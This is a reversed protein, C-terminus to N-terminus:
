IRFRAVTGSLREAVGALEAATRAVEQVTVALEGNAALSQETERNALGVQVGVQDRMRVQSAMATSIQQAVTSVSDIHERIDALAQVSTGVAQTGQLVVTDVEEIQARIDLTSCASREALKRVEDAVVAFGLGMTGAKAAEIAANLSLLNTQRAIDQIVGVATDMRLTAKRISAMTGMAAEGARGSETSAAVASATRRLAEKLGTDVEAILQSLGEM